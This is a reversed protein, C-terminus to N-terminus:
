VICYIIDAQKIFSCQQRSMLLNLKTSLSSDVLPCTLQRDFSLSFERLSSTTLRMFFSKYDPRFASWEMESCLGSVVSWCQTWSYRKSQITRKTKFLSKCSSFDGLMERACLVGFFSLLFVTTEGSLWKAWITLRNARFALKMTLPNFFSFYAPKTYNHIM